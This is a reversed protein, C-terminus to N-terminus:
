YEYVRREIIEKIRDINVESADGSRKAIDYAEDIIAEELRKSQSKSRKSQIASVAESVAPTEGKYQSAFDEGGFSESGEFLRDVAKNILSEEQMPTVKSKDEEVAKEGPLKVAEGEATVGYTYGDPDKYYEVYEDQEELFQRDWEEQEYREKAEREDTKFKEGAERETERFTEGAIREARRFGREEKTQRETAKGIAYKGIGGAVHEGIRTATEGVLGREEAKVTDLSARRHQRYATQRMGASAEVEAEAQAFGVGLKGKLFARGARDGPALQSVADMVATKKRTALRRLGRSREYEVSASGKSIERQLTKRRGRLDRKRQFHRVGEAGVRVGTEILSLTGASPLGGGGTTRYGGLRDGYNLGTRYGSM